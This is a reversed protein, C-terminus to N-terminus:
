KKRSFKYHDIVCAVAQRSKAKPDKSEDVRVVRGKCHIAVDTKTGLIAAPLTIDFEISAGAELKAASHVYVGSGSVNLTTSKETKGAKVDKMNFPLALPFRKGTRMEHGL